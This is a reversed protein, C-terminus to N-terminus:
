WRGRQRMDEVADEAQSFAMLAFFALVAVFVAGGIFLWLLWM